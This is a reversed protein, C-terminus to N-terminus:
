SKTLRTDTILADSRYARPDTCILGRNQILRQCITILGLPLRGLPFSDRHNHLTYIQKMSRPDNAEDAEDKTAELIIFLQSNFALARSRNKM